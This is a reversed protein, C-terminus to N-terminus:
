AREQAAVRRAPGKRRSPARGSLRLVLFELLIEPEAFGSVMRERTELILRRRIQLGRVSFARAQEMMKGARFPHMKRPDRKRDLGDLLADIEPGEQWVGNSGEQRVWGRDMCERLILLERFRSELGGMLIAWHVKQFLLQRLLSLAKGTERLAVADALDWGESVRSVSVLTQVAEETVTGQDGVYLSLKEIESMIQRTDNGTRDVFPYLISPSIKLGVDRFRARAFDRASDRAQYARAPVSYEQVEGAEKCAKVFASRGDVGPATILLRHGEPLGARILATLEALWPQVEKAKNLVANKLFTANRFWIVKRGQSFGVTRVAVLCQRLASAADAGNAAEANVEDLGFARDAAPCLVDLIRRAAESVLFDDSGHILYVSARGGNHGQDQEAKQAM